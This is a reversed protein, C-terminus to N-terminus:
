NSLLTNSILAARHLRSTKCPMNSSGTNDRSPYQIDQLSKDHVKETEGHM